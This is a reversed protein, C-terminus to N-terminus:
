GSQDAVLFSVTDGAALPITADYSIPCGNLAVTVRRGPPLHVADAARQITAACVQRRGASSHRAGGADALRVTVAPAPRARAAAYDAPTNVNLVSDLGPDLAALMPDSTLAADDLRTVACAELLFAPRLRDQEVLRAAVEGLSTRYGAALPQRYGRAVPLAVDPGDPGDPRDLARLVARVFAPHLFPLDTSAVFALEAHDRLVALGVAIGQVPGRGERPDDVVLTEGPLEPLEQGRARVVIVPGDVVRGVIGVARRLLTSGHWELAAKATGMRTSRGGALVVGGRRGVSSGAM